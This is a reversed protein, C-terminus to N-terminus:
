KKTQLALTEDSFCETKIVVAEFNMPELDPEVKINESESKIRCLFKAL